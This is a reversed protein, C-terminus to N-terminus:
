RDFRRRERSRKREREEDKKLLIVALRVFLSFLDMFLELAHQPVDTMGASAREVIMQTDYVVFACFAILGLYLEASFVLSNGFFMNGITAWFIIGLLSTAAGGVYILSRREALLASVSFGLFIFVASSLATLLLNGSPDWLTYTEILSSISMGSFLAYVSLLLWRWNNYTSLHRIGLVSGVVGALPLPTNNIALLMSNGGGVAGAQSGYAAIALMGAIVLYVHLLHQRVPRSISRESSFDNQQHKSPGPEM